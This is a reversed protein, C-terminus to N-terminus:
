RMSKFLSHNRKILTIFSGKTNSGRSWGQSGATLATVTAKLLDEFFRRIKSFGKEPSGVTFGAMDRKLHGFLFHTNFTADPYHASHFVIM